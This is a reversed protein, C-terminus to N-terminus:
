LLCIKSGKREGFFRKLSDELGEPEIDFKDNDWPKPVGIEKTDGMLAKLSFALEGDVDGKKACEAAADVAAQQPLYTHTYKVEQIREVMDIIDGWAYLGGIVRFQREQTPSKPLFLSEVLYKSVDRIATFPEQKDPTGYFTFTHKEIDTGFIPELAFEAFGGTLLYTYNFEPVRKAMEVLHRRTVQKDRFYRNTLYGGQSIDSGFESPYFENVGASVAADIIAPQRKMAHNGLMCIVTDFGKFSEPSDFPGLVIEMGRAEIDSFKSRKEETTLIALRRLRSRNRLCQESVFHGVYGGSGILLVSPSSM